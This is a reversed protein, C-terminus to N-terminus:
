EEPLEPILIGKEKGPEGFQKFQSDPIFYGTGKIVQIKDFVYKQEKSLDTPKGVYIAAALAFGILLAYIGWGWKLSFATLPSINDYYNNVPNTGKLLSQSVSENSDIVEQNAMILARIITLSYRDMKENTEIFIRNEVEKLKQDITLKEM